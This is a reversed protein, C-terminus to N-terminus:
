AADTMLQHVTNHFSTRVDAEKTLNRRLGMVQGMSDEPKLRRGELM